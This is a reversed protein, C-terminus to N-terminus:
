DKRRQRELLEKYEDIARTVDWHRAQSSVLGNWWNILRELMLKAFIVIIAAPIIALAALNAPPPLFALLCFSVVVEVLILLPLAIAWFLGQIIGPVRDIQVNPIKLILRYFLPLKQINVEKLREETM